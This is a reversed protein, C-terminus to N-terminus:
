RQARSAYTTATDLGELTVLWHMLLARAEEPPMDLPEPM